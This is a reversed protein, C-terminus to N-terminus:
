VVGTQQMARLADGSKTALCRPVIYIVDWFVFDDKTLFFVM